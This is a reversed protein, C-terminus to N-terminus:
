HSIFNKWANVIILLDTTPLTFNKSSSNFNPIDYIKAVYLNAIITTLSQSSYEINNIQGSILSNLADITENVDEINQDDTILQDLLSNISNMGYYVRSLINKKFFKINYHELVDM